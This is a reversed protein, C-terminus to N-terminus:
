MGPLLSVVMCGTLFDIAQVVDPIDPLLLQGDEGEIVFVNNAGTELVEVLEGLINDEVDRVTLGILQYLYYEGEALPEADEVSVYIWASRLTEVDDRTELGAFSLLVAGKHVRASAVEASQRGEEDFFVHSLRKFRDPDDTYPIVRVEGRVGHPKTIRGVVLFRPEASQDASGGSSLAEAKRESSDDM